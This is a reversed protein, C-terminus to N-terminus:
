VGPSGLGELPGWEGPMFVLTCALVWVASGAQGRGLRVDWKEVAEVPCARQEPWLPRRAAGGVDGAQEQLEQERTGGVYRCPRGTGEELDKSLHRKKQNEKKSEVAENLCLKCGYLESVALM